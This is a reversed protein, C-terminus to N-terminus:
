GASGFDGVVYDSRASVLTLSTERNPGPSTAVIAQECRKPGALDGATTYLGAVHLAILGTM